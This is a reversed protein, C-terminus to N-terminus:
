VQLSPVGKERPGKNRRWEMFVDPKIAASYEM